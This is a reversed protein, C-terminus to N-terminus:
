DDGFVPTGINAPSKGTTHDYRWLFKGTKADVGVVGKALFQVYQRVGAANVIIISSYAAATAKPFRISGSWKETKRTSRSSTADKGGPTVVVVNKDILPSEAYAWTGSAGGFDTILNKTWRIKGKAIDMCALDGDSGLAYLMKGDVTPQQDRM